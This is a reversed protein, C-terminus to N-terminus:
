GTAPLASQRTEKAGEAALVWPKRRWSVLALIGFGLEFVFGTWVQGTNNNFTQTFRYETTGGFASTAFEVQMPGLTNFFINYPVTNLSAATNNDNNQAPTVIAGVTGTSSGPLSLTTTSAIVGGQASGMLGSALLAAAGYSRSLGAM